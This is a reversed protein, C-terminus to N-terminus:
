MEEIVEEIVEHLEERTFPKVLFSAAGQKLARLATAKGALASIIIINVEPLIELIKGLATMGDMEPMTLDLTIIDPNMKSAMEIAEYGNSAHGVIEMDIEGLWQDLAGRIIISDDVILVKM